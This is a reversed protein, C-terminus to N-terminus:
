PEGETVGTEWAIDCNKCHYRYAQQKGQEPTLLTAVEGCERCRYRRHMRHGLVLGVLAVCLPPLMLVAWGLWGHHSRWFPVVLPLLCLGGAFVALVRILARRAFEKDHRSESM